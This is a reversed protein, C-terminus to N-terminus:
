CESMVFDSLLNSLWIISFHNFHNPTSMLHVHIFFNEFFFPHVKLTQCILESTLIILTNEQYGKFSTKIVDYM